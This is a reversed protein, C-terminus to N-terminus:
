PSTCSRRVPRSGCPTAASSSKGARTAVAHARELRRRQNGIVLRQQPLRELAHEGDGPGAEADDGTRAIAALRDLLELLLTRVHAKEVHVHWAQAADFGRRADATARM